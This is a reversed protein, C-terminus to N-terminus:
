LEAKVKDGYKKQCVPCIAKKGIFTGVIKGLFTYEIKAKCIACKM